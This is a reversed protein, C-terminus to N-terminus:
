SAFVGKIFEWVHYRIKYLLGELPRMRGWEKVTRTKIDSLCQQAFYFAYEHAVDPSPQVYDGNQDCQFPGKGSNAIEIGQSYFHAFLEKSM